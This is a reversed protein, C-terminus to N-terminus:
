KINRLVEVIKNDLPINSSYIHKGNIGRIVPPMINLFLLITKLISYNKEELKFFLMRVACNPGFVNSLIVIHNIMLREKLIDYEKYRYILRKIYDFRKIDEEFESMVSNPRDYAKVAYLLFNKDNLDDFTDLM